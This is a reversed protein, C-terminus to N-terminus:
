RPYTSISIGSGGSRPYVSISAGEGTRHATFSAHYSGASSSTVQWGGKALAHAYFAGIKTVSASSSLVTSTSTKSVVSSPQYEPLKGAASKHTGRSAHGSQNGTDAAATSRAPAAAKQTVTTTPQPASALTPAACATLGLAAAVAAAAAAILVRSRATRPSAGAPDHRRTSSQGDTINM